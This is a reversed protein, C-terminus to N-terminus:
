AIFGIGGIVGVFVVAAIAFVPNVLDQISQAFSARRTSRRSSSPEDPRGLHVGQDDAPVGDHHHLDGARRAGAPAVLSASIRKPPDQPVVVDVRRRLGDTLQGRRRSGRPRSARDRAEFERHGLAAGVIGGVIIALGLRLGAARHDLPQHLAQPRRRHRRAPLGAVVGSCPPRPSPTPCSGAPVRSFGIALIGILIISLVPLRIPEVMQQYLQVNAQENGTAREAWARLTWM